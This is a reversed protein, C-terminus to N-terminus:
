FISKGNERAIFFVRQSDEKPENFTLEDYVALLELGSKKILEKIKKISYAKEYHIEEFRHYLNTKKDKIFFNTYFENIMEENDFYNELTYASNKTTGSFSNDALINKFKYVTNIDFIFLGKPDLYNNVLKFVQLLDDEELIYNISDCISLVCDVTGYLEFEQMDQELYLINVNEKISKERAKALMQFSNDIGILEYGKKALPITINGTGCALDAILKPNLNFKAWIKEIYILWDEYPINEMFTDYVESFNEYISM